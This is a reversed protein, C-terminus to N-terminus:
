IFLLTPWILRAFHALYLSRLPGYWTTLALRQLEYIVADLAAVISPDADGHLYRRVDKLTEVCKSVNDM